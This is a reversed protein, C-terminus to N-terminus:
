RSPDEPDRPRSPPLGPAGPGDHKPWPWGNIILEGDVLRLEITEGGRLSPDEPDHRPSLFHLQQNTSGIWRRTTDPRERVYRGDVLLDTAALLRGVAPETVTQADLEARTFGSYIMVGLGAGQVQEALVALALPQAFPEGGLLSIGELPSRAHAALIQDRVSAVTRPTGGGFRLLEPNCCGPCRMPCGQVWIAYRRGPGEAETNAVEVGVDITLALEDTPPAM